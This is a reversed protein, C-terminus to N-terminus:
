SITDPMDKKLTIIHRPRFHRILLINKLTLRSLSFIILSFAIIYFLRLMPMIRETINVVKINRFGAEKLIKPFKDHIFYPLSFMGTENIILDFEKQLKKPLTKRDIVSYEFLALHGNSKLVRCFEKLAKKYNPSHVLTEMTYIGDFINDRKAIHTYDSVHFELRDQLNFKRKTKNAKNIAWQVLDLGIIKLGCRQALYSAVKGEGCGADLVLSDRPLDLAQALRDEMLHQAKILSINEKNKPYYGFHKTGKLLLTYGFRSEKTNYYALVKKIKQSGKM